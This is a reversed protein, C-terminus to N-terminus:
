NRKQNYPYRMSRACIHKQNKIRLKEFVNSHLSSSFRSGNVGGDEMKELELRTVCKQAGM